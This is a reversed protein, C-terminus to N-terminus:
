WTRYLGTVWLIRCHYEDEAFAIRRRRPLITEIFNQENAAATQVNKYRRVVTRVNRFLVPGLYSMRTCHLGVDWINRYQGFIIWEHVTCAWLLSIGTCCLDVTWVHRCLRALLEFMETSFLGSILCEQVICSWPGSMGTSYLLAWLKSMGTPYRGSNFCEQATCTSLKSMGTCYFGLTWCDQWFLCSNLCEQM